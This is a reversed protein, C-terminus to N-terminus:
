REYEEWGKWFVEKRKKHDEIVQKVSNRIILYALIFPATVTFIIIFLISPQEDMNFYFWYRIFDVIM